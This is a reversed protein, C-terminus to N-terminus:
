FVPEGLGIPTNKIVCTIEGGLTDGQESTIKIAELM